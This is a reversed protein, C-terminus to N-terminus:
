AGAEGGGTVQHGLGLERGPGALGGAAALGGGGALAVGPEAAGEAFGGGVRGPGLGEQGGAVLPDDPAAALVTGQDGDAVGDEGDGPVQQGVGGGAEGAQAGVPM